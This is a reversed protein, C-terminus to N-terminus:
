RICVVLLDVLKAGRTGNAGGSTSGPQENTDGYFADNWSNLDSNYWLPEIHVILKMEMM